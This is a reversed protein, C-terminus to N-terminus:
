MISVPLKHEIWKSLCKEFELKRTGNLDAGKFEKPLSFYLYNNTLRGRIKYGDDSEIELLSLIDLDYKPEGFDSLFDVISKDIDVPISYVFQFCQDCEKIYSKVIDAFKIKM